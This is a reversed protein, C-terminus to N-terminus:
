VEESSASVADPDSADGDDGDQADDAEVVREIHGWELLMEQSPTLTATFTEGPATDCVRQSGTVRYTRIEGAGALEVLPKRIM